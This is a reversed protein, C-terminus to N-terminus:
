HSARPPAYLVAPDEARQVFYQELDSAVDGESYYVSSIPTMRCPHWRPLNLSTWKDYFSVAFGQAYAPFLTRNMKQKYMTNLSEGTRSHIANSKGLKLARHLGLTSYPIGDDNVFCVNFFPDLMIWKNIQPIWVEAVVHGRIFVRRAHEGKAQALQVLMAALTGCAFSEGSDVRDLLGLIALNDPKALDWRHPSQDRVFDMLKIATEVNFTTDQFVPRLRPDSRIRRFRPHTLDEYCYADPDHLPTPPGISESNNPALRWAKYVVRAVLNKSVLRLKRVPNDGLSQFDTVAAYVILGAALATFAAAVLAFRRFARKM